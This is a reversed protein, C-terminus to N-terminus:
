WHGLFFLHFWGGQVEVMKQVFPNDTFDLGDFLFGTLLSQESPLFTKTDLDSEIRPSSPKTLATVRSSLCSLFKICRGNVPSTPYAAANGFSHSFNSRKPSRALKKSSTKVLTQFSRGRCRRSDTKKRETFKMEERYFLLPFRGLFTLFRFTILPAKWILRLSTSLLGHTLILFLSLSFPTDSKFSGQSSSIFVWWLRSLNEMQGLSWWLKERERTWKREREREEREKEREPVREHFDRM